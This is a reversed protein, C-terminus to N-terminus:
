EAGFPRGSKAWPKLGPVVSATVFCSGLGPPAVSAMDPCLTGDGRRPQFVMMIEGIKMGLSFGQAVM